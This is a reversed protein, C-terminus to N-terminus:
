LRVTAPRFDSRDWFVCSLKSILPLDKRNCRVESDRIESSLLFFTNISILCSIKVQMSQHFKLRFHGPQDDEQLIKRPSFAEVKTNKRSIVLVLASSQQSILVERYLYPCPFYLSQFVPRKPKKGYAGFLDLNVYCGSALSFNGHASKNVMFPQSYAM